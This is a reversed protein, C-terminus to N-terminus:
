YVYRGFAAQIVPEEADDESDDNVEQQNCKAKADSLCAACFVKEPIIHTNRGDKEHMLKGFYNWSASSKECSRRTDITLFSLSIKNLDVSM